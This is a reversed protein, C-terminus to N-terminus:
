HPIAGHVIFRDHGFHIDPCIIVVIMAIARYQQHVEGEHV